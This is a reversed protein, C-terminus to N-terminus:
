EHILEKLLGKIKAIENDEIKGSFFYRIIGKKDVIVFNSEKEKMRYASLMKGDWDGFVTLGEKKTDERLKSKWIESIPWFASSCNIVPLRV